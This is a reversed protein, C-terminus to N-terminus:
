ISDWRRQTHKLNAGFGTSTTTYQIAVNAGIITSSFTVGLITTEVYDDSFSVITGNTAILFRGTRYEGNREVSYEVIIHKNDAHPLSIITLPSIQNDNLSVNTSLASIELGNMNITKNTSNWKFQVDAGLTGADNFQIDQNVGAAVTSSTNSGAYSPVGTPGGPSDSWRRLAYKMTADTSLNTTTYRLRLNGLTIDGEFQIGVNNNVSAAGRTVTVNTGDHSIILYGTEKNAGRSISYDVIINESGTANVEFVSDTTNDTLTSTRLSDQEWFDAGNFHRVVENVVWNTDKFNAIQNNFADGNLIVALDGDSPTESGADFVKQPTWTLAVGVGGLEYIKNNGVALNTFLVLDGDVGTQGDIIVSVGSPLATSIPDFYDVKFLGQGSGSAGLRASQGELMFQKTFPLYLERSGNVPNDIRKFLVFIDRNAKTITPIPTTSSNNFTVIQNTQTRDVEIWIADGDNPMLIPSNAAQISHTTIIATENAAVELVIDSNFALQDGLWTIVEDSRLFANRDEQFEVDQGISAEEGVELDGVGRIFLKSGQRIAIWYNSDNIQFDEFAVTQFNTVGAGTDSFIRDGNDPLTVFMVEGDAIAITSSGGAGDQRTLDIEQSEGFLRIKAIIDTNAPTGSSDSISLNSGDWSMASDSSFGVLYSNLFRFLGNISGKTPQYWFDTGKLTKLETTIANFMDKFDQIDKDAGSFSENVTNLIGTAGSDNGLVTNGTTFNISSPTSFTIISGGGTIVTATIGNIDITEGATFSGVVGTMVMTYVPENVQNVWSFENNPNLATGLRFFLDRRDLIIKIEGTIDTEVIALPIRDPSGSFGGLEVKAAIALDDITDVIQNFELGEGSNAVQDWFAKTAPTNSERCLELEIYNRTGDILESDPIIINTAPNEAVFFSFDFTTEGNILTAQDMVITAQNFGIGTVEFGKIIYNQNSLFQKTWFTSDTRLGSILNRYDSLDWRQQAILRPSSLVSM